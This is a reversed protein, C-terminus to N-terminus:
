RKKPNTKKQWKYWTCLTHIIYMIYLADIVICYIESWGPTILTKGKKKMAGYISFDKKPSFTPQALVFCLMLFSINKNRASLTFIYPLHTLKKQIFFRNIVFFKIFNKTLSKTTKETTKKKVASQQKM